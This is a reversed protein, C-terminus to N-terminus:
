RCPASSRRSRATRPAPASVSITSFQRGRVGRLASRRPIDSRVPSAVPKRTTTKVQILSRSSLTRVSGRSRAFRPKRDLLPAENYHRSLQQPDLAHPAESGHLDLPEVSHFRLPWMRNPFINALTQKPRSGAGSPGNHLPHNNVFQVACNLSFSCKMGHVSHSWPRLRLFPLPATCRWCCIREGNGAAGARVPVSSCM